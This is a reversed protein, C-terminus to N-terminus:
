KWYKMLAQLSALIVVVPMEILTLKYLWMIFKNNGWKVKGVELM